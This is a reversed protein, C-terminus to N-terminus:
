MTKPKSSDNAQPSGSTDVPTTGSKPEPSPTTTLAPKQKVVLLDFRTLERWADDGSVLYVIVQSEGLPLPVLTPSYVLRTGDIIVLSTVDSRDILVAVRGEDAKLQRNLRLEIATDPTLLTQTNFSASLTLNDQAQPVKTQPWLCCVIMSLWCCAKLARQAYRHTSGRYQTPTMGM